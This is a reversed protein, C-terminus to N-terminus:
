DARLQLENAKIKLYIRTEVAAISRNCKAAIAKTSVGGNYWDHLIQDEAATWVRHPLEPRRTRKKKKPFSNRDMTIARNVPKKLKEIEAYLEGIHNYIHEIDTKLRRMELGKRTRVKITASLASMKCCWGRTDTM